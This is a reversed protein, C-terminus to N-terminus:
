KFTFVDGGEDRLREVPKLTLGGRRLGKGPTLNSCPLSPTLVVDPSLGSPGWADWRLITPALREPARHTAGRTGVM